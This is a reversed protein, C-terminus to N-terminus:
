HVQVDTDLHIDNMTM